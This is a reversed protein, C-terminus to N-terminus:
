RAIGEIESVPAATERVAKSDGDLVFCAGGPGASRRKASVLWFSPWLREMSRRGNSQPPMLAALLAVRNGKCTLGATLHLTLTAKGFGSKQNLLAVIM